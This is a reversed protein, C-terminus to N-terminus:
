RHFHESGLALQDLGSDRVRMDLMRAGTHKSVQSSAAVCQWASGRALREATWVRRSAVNKDMRQWEQAEITDLAVVFGGIIEDGAMDIALAASTSHIAM